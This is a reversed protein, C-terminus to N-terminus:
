SAAHEYVKIIQDHTMKVEQGFLDACAEGTFTYVCKIIITYINLFLDVLQHGFTKNAKSM